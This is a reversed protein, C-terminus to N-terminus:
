KCYERLLILASKEGSWVRYILALLYTGLYNNHQFIHEYMLFLCIGSHTSHLSMIHPTNKYNKLVAM